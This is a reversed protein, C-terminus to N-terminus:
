EYRLAIMPDVRTARRAPFYAAALGVTGLILLAIGVGAFGFAKVGYLQANVVQGLGYALPLGVLIGVGVLRAVDGLIMQGVRQPEAGLAMRVGIERTRQAVTYALLGYIGIAALLAALAGFIMALLAVLRESSLQREIQESLTREDFIPLSADLGKVITRISRALAAPDESSRVYYTLRGATRSREQRYPVYVFEKPEEKVGSSHSDQVVGVIELDLPGNGDGFKMHRGLASSNPFFTKAMTQNIIAVKPSDPGDQIGFERGQVLPIGLNSFHREGVGNRLVHRTGATEAPEGEVTVNSGWNDDAILPLESGSFSRVGPLAAIQEELRRFFDLSREKNYGNLEPAVSFQFVNTPQLGLDVHKLNYLSHVFGGAVVVLVLTIAVQCVVLGKRLGAHTLGSSLSGGQEKLTKVLEVRTTRFAPAVGFFVGSVLAIGVAFLLVPANLSSSLGDAVENVQAYHVLVNSIWTAIILGIVAGFFALLCSEIVLQRILRWRSAGLSLRLAIEKQRAAGRATQLAAVNACAILLVLGVMAMLAILSQKTDNELLPRGRAGNKLVVHKALFEKKQQDNWGTNLPLEETLLAQYTPGIGAMAQERSLGPKLRGILKVWYDKHDSLGDWSPTISHKMTIPLYVDPVQGLQIGTFGPQVVGVVAMAQNNILVSENLVRSDGGFRHKWYGYGLVVVPTVGEATSDESHLTRGVAPHVGLVEFYNGSVLEAEARETQGRSALSVPFDAKAALGSFVSTHDRLDKYMPYSFSESGDGEDSSVHGQTPGPAYLLVLEEPHAVPLQQLLVQQMVSFIGTNAGIGLALTLVAVVTFGPKKRLMRLGFRLDQLFTELAPLGRSDRHEEKAQQTGGFDVMARRRAEEEPMGRKRNETIALELHSSMETELERDLRGGRFFCVIQQVLLRIRGKM